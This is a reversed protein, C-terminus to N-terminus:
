GERAISRAAAAETRWGAIYKKAYGNAGIARDVEAATISDPDRTAAQEMFWNQGRTRKSLQEDATVVHLGPAHPTLSKAERKVAATPKTSAPTKATTSKVRAPATSRQMLVLLHVMLWCMVPYVAAVGVVLPWGVPIIRLDILHALVNGAISAILAGVAVRRAWTRVQGTYSVWLLTAVAGGVDITLPLSLALPGADMGVLEALQYLWMGSVLAVIVGIAATGGYALVPVWVSRPKM